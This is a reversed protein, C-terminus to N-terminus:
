SEIDLECNYKYEFSKSESNYLINITFVKNSYTSLIIRTKNTYALWHALFLAKKLSLKEFLISKKDFYIEIHRAAQMLSFDICTNGCIKMMAFPHFYEYLVMFEPTIHDEKYTTYIITPITESQRPIQINTYHYRIIPHKVKLYKDFDYSNEYSKEIFKEYNIDNNRKKKKKLM